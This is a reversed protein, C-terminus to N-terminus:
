FCRKVEEYSSDDSNRLVSSCEKISKLSSALALSPVMLTPSSPFIWMDVGAPANMGALGGFVLDNATTDGSALVWFSYCAFAANVSASVLVSFNTSPIGTPFFQGPGTIINSGPTITAVTTIAATSGYWWCMIIYYGPQKVRVANTGTAAIGPLTSAASVSLGITGFRNLNAATSVPLEGLHSYFNVIALNSPLRPKRLLVDYSIWLEGITYASQMGQTAIQFKGIDYLRQDAGTPIAGSRLYRSPLVNLSPKCEVPHICGNFPVTSTSFQYSEMSQKTQFVSELVDYNTALIVVGLASSVSSIAMGSSPRYELVLGEMVYEEFNACLQSLWPFTTFLGPNLNYSNLSFLISGLVDTLFERHCVKMGNGDNQFTPITNGNSITNSNIRYSGGGFIRDVMSGAAQGLASGTPGAMASGAVGGLTSFFNSHRKEYNRSQNSIEKKVQRKGARTPPGFYQKVPEQAKNKGNRNKRRRPM